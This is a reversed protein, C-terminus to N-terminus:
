GHAARSGDARADPRHRAARDEPTSCAACLADHLEATEVPRVAFYVPRLAQIARRIELTAEGAVIVLPLDPAVRRLFRLAVLDDERGPALSFLVVGPQRVSIEELLAETTAVKVPVCGCAPLIAMLSDADGSSEYLLVTPEM